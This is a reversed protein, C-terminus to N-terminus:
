QQRRAVTLFISADQARNPSFIDRDLFSILGQMLFNFPGHLLDPLVPRVGDLLYQGGTASRGIIGRMEEIKFGAQGFIKQLGEHTWRWYDKPVPHYTMHGHTSLLLLGNKKLLRRAERLYVDPAPVHELVQTSLVVDATGEPLDCTGDVGLVHDVNEGDEIDLGVYKSVYPSLIPAYPKSGCGYDILTIQEM